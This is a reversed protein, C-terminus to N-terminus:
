VCACCVFSVVSVFIFILFAIIKISILFSSMSRVTCLYFEPVKNELTLLDSVRTFVVSDYWWAHLYNGREDGLTVAGEKGECFM